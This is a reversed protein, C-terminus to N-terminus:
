RLCNYIILIIHTIYKQKYLSIVWTGPSGGNEKEDEIVHASNVRHVLERQIGVNVQEVKANFLALM